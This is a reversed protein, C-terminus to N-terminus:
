RPFAAVVLLLVSFLKLHYSRLVLLTFVFSFQSFSVANLDNIHCKVAIFSQQAFESDTLKLYGLPIRRTGRHDLPRASLGELVYTQSEGIKKAM